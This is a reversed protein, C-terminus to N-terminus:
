DPNHCALRPRILAMTLTKALPLHYFTPFAYNVMIRPCWALTWTSSHHQFSPFPRIFYPGCTEGQGCPTALYESIYVSHETGLPLNSDTLTQRRGRFGIRFGAQLDRSMCSPFAKDPHDTLLRTFRVVEIPTHMCSVGTHVLFTRYM